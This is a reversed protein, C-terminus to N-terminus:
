KFAILVETLTLSTWQRTALDLTGDQTMSAKRWLVYDAADVVGHVSLTGASVTTSGRYQGQFVEQKGAISIKTQAKGEVVGGQTLSADVRQEIRAAHTTTSSGTTCTLIAHGRARWSMELTGAGEKTLHVIDTDDWVTSSGICNTTQPAAQATGAAIFGLAMAGILAAMILKTM